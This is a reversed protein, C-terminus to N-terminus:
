RIYRPTEGKGWPDYGASFRVREGVPPHSYLWFKIFASPHPDSLSVEGLIQFAGAAAEPSDPVIGHIAELGYIDANHELARSFSNMAPEAVFALVVFAMLLLPLSAWDEMGRISWREGWRALAWHMGHYGAFLSALILLCTTAILMWMHGLVYHGMEHGFVFLTQDTSMKRITTDWVVVRKSAGVGTVYASVSKLKESAKMEFMRDHPIALGGRAVVQDIGAVLAPQRAALPEFQYFLPTILVPTVFNLFVVGPAAALGGYLWWRRPSRRLIGYLGWVLVGAMVYSLLEGKTWDWFWSGWGQISQDYRLALHQRYIDLPFGLADIVLFLLPAFLFAQVIRRRSAAEAWARLRPAVKWTLVRVLVLLTYAVGIFHLWNQARSYEIARALKDPPLTYTKVAPQPSAPAPVPPQAL